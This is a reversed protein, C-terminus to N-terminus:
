GREASYLAVGASVYSMAIFILADTWHCRIIAIVCSILGFLSVVSATLYMFRFIYHLVGLIFKNIKQKTTLPPVFRPM